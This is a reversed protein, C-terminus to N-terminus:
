EARKNTSKKALSPFDTATTESAPVGTLNGIVATVLPGPKELTRHSGLLSSAELWRLRRESADSHWTASRLDYREQHVAAHYHRRSPRAVMSPMPQARACGSRFACETYRRARRGYYTLSHLKCCWIERAGGCGCRTEARLCVAQWFVCGEAVIELKYPMESGPSSSAAAHAASPTRTTGTGPAHAATAATLTAPNEDWSNTKKPNTAPLLPEATRRRFSASIACTFTGTHKVTFSCPTDPATCFTEPTEEREQLGVIHHRSAANTTVLKTTWLPPM